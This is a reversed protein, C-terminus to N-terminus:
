LVLLTEEGLADRRHGANRLLVMIRELIGIAQFLGYGTGVLVTPVMLVNRAILVM